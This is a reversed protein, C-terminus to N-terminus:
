LYAAYASVGRSPSSWEIQTRWCRKVISDVTKVMYDFKKVVSDVKKVVLDSKKVILDSKKVVSDFKRQGLSPAPVGRPCGPSMGPVGWSM